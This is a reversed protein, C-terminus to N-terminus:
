RTCLLYFELGNRAHLFYLGPAGYYGFSQSTCLNTKLYGLLACKFNKNQKDKNQMTLVCSCALYPRYAAPKLCHNGYVQHSCKKVTQSYPYSETVKLINFSKLKGGWICKSSQCSIM